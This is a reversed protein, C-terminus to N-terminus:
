TGSGRPMDRAVGEERWMKDFHASLFRTMPHRFIVFSKPANDKTNEARHINYRPIVGRKRLEAVVHQDFDQTRNRGAETSLTLISKWTSCGNKPIYCYEVNKEPVFLFNQSGKEQFDQYKECVKRIHNQREQQTCVRPVTDLSSYSSVSQVGSHKATFSRSYIFAILFCVLGAVLCFTRLYFKGKM